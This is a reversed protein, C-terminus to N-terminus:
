RAAEASVGIAKLATELLETGEKIYRIAADFNQRQASEDAQARKEKGKKVYSEMLALISPPLNLREVALPIAEELSTYRKLEYAYEDAPTAFKMEYSITQNALLGKLAHSIERMVVSVVKNAEDYKGDAALTQAADKMRQIQDPDLKSDGKNTSSELNRRYAAEMDNMSRLTVLYKSQADEKRSATPVLKAAEMMLSMAMSSKNIAEKLDGTDLATQAAALAGQAEQHKTKATANSSAELRKAADSQNIFMDTFGLRQAVEHKSPPM